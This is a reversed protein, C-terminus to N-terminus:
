RSRRRHRRQLRDLLWPGDRTAAIAVALHEAPAAEISGADDPLDGAPLADALSGLEEAAGFPVVVGTATVLWYGDGSRTPAIGTVPDQPSGPVTEAALDDAHADMAARDPGADSRGRALDGHDAADGVPVVRGASDVLWYGRGSRTSAVGVLRSGPAVSGPVPDIAPAGAVAIVGGGAGVLWLGSGRPSAAAAIPAVSRSHSRKVRRADGYSFVDGDRTVLWYGDGSRTPTVAVVPGGRRRDAASGWFRTDGIDYVQGDAGALWLGDGPRLQAPPTEPMASAREGLSAGASDLMRLYVRLVTDSYRTSTAWNGNGMVRWSPAAGHKSSPARVVIPAYSEDIPEPAAYQRLLQMQARVGTRADPYRFGRVGGDYAGIGAYNNDAWHVQGYDPYYLWGTEVLSQAWAIDARVGYAEGEEIFLSALEEIPVTLRETHGSEEYAAVLGAADLRSVGLVSFPDTDAGDAYALAVAVPDGSAAPVGQGASRGVAAGGSLAVVLLGALAGLFSFRDRTM